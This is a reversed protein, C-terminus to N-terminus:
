ENSGNINLKPLQLTKPGYYSNDQHCEKSLYFDDQLNKINGSVSGTTVPELSKGDYYYALRIEGAFDGTMSDMQFDSFEVLEIYPKSKMAEISKSGPAVVVNRISGTPVVNMYHAYRSNGWYNILKGDEVIKVKKMILGDQDYPKSFSSNTLNPDLTISVKDGKIDGGQIPDDLKFTSIEEYVSQVNSLDVYYSMMSSVAEGSLLVNYDSLNPTKGANSKDRSFDIMTKVEDSIQDPRYDAFNMNKFSEVEEKGKWNTIFELHIDYNSYTVDVGESNVIRYTNDNLFLESSNLAAAEKIDSKFIAQTFDPLWSSLSKKTMDSKIPAVDQTEPKVLPYYPNMVFSAAYSADELAETIEERTMTPAIKTTSSGKYKNGDKEFDKYVTVIFHHVKKLRNMDVAQRVFFLEQSSTEKDIIHWGDISDMSKLIDQLLNNM